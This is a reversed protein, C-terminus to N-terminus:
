LQKTERAEMKRLRKANKISEKKIAEAQQLKYMNMEQRGKATYGTQNTV